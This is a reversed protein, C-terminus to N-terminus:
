QVVEWSCCYLNCCPIIIERLAKYDNYDKSIKVKYFRLGRINESIPRWIWYENEEQWKMYREANQMPIINNKNLYNLVKQKDKTIYICTVIQNSYPFKRGVQKNFYNAYEELINM